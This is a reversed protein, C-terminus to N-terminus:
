DNFPQRSDKDLDSRRSPRLTWAVIAAFVVVFALLFWLNMPNDPMTKALATTM